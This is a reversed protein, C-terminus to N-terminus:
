NEPENQQEIEDAMARVNVLMKIAGGFKLLEFRKCKFHFPEFIQEIYNLM